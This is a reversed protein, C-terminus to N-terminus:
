GLYPYERILEPTPEGTALTISLSALARPDTVVTSIGRGIAQRHRDTEAAVEDAIDNQRATRNYPPTAVATAVEEQTPPPLEKGTLGRVTDDVTGKLGPINHYALGAGGGMAGGLGAYLLPNSWRREKKKRALESVLGYIGGLGAGTGALALTQAGPGSGGTISDVYKDWYESFTSGATEGLSRAPNAINKDWFDSVSNGVNEYWPTEAVKTFGGAQRSFVMYTALKDAAEEPSALLIDRPIRSSM